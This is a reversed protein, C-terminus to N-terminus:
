LEIISDGIRSIENDHSIVFIIKGRKKFEELVELLDSKVSAAINSSPEDLFYVDRDKTLTVLLSVMQREGSSLHQMKKTLHKRIDFSLSIFLRKLVKDGNLNDELNHIGVYERLYTSLDIEPFIESQLMMAINKKRQNIMDIDDINVDNIFIKGTKGINYVGTICNVLTTKGAGNIGLISYIGPKTVHININEKFIDMGNIKYNFDSIKLSRIEEIALDGNDEIDQNLLLDLRDKSVKALQLDKGFNFLFKINGLIMSFYTNLLTYTGITMNGNVISFGGIILIVLQFFLTILQDLSSFKFTKKLYNLISFLYVSFYKNMRDVRNKYDSYVRTEVFREYEKNVFGYFKNSVEVNELGLKYLPKRMLIYVLIYCPIFFLVVVFIRANINFFLVVLIILQILSIIIDYVNDIFFNTLQSVDQGIRQHLYTPDEKSVYEIPIHEIHDIMILELEFSMNEKIKTKILSNFYSLIIGIIGLLAVVIFFNFVFSKKPESILTDIFLSNLYPIIIGIASSFLYISFLTM